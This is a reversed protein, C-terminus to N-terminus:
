LSSRLEAFLTRGPYPHAQYAHQDTVNDVGVAFELKPQPKYSLRLDAENVKSVGGYVGPNTDLNYVDNYARGQHRWGISG